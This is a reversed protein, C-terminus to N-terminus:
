LSHQSARLDIWGHSSSASTMDAYHPSAPDTSVSYTVIARVDPGNPSFTVAQIYSSGAAIPAHGKNPTAEWSPRGPPPFAAMANYM